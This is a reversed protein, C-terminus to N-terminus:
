GPTYASIRSKEPAPMKGPLFCFSPTGPIALPSPDLASQGLRHAGEAQASTARDPPGLGLKLMHNSDDSHIDCPHIGPQGFTRQGFGSSGSESGQCGQCSRSLIGRMWNTLLIWQDGFGLTASDLAARASCRFMANSIYREWAIQLDANM